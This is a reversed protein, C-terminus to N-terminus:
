GNKDGRGVFHEYWLGVHGFKEPWQLCIIEDAADNMAVRSEPDAVPVAVVIRQVDLRRVARIAALMTSGTHIGNDVLIITKGALEGPARDGRTTRVRAQLQKLGDAIAYELGTKPTAPAEPIGEDFVLRGGVNVACLASAAGHPALLRRIFLQDLPLKLETAVAAAVDAGGNMIAVVITDSAGRFQSLSAALETGAAVLTRFRRM